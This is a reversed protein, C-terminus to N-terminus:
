APPRRADKRGVNARTAFFREAAFAKAVADMFTRIRPTCRMDGHCLCWVDTRFGRIPPGIMTLSAARGIPVPLAAGGVGAAVLALMATAQTTRAVPGRGGSWETYWREAANAGLAEDWLIWPIAEPAADAALSPAVFPAYDVAGVRRGFLAEDPANSLRVAVDAERRALDRADNSPDLVVCAGPRQAAYTAIARSLTPALGDVTTVILRGSGDRAAGEIRQRFARAATEVADAEPAAARAADTPALGSATAVFLAVGTKREIRALRRAVTTHSVGLARAAALLSGGRYAALFYRADDWEM